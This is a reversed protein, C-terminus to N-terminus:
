IYAYTFGKPWLGEALPNRAYIHEAIAHTQMLDNIYYNVLVTLTYM